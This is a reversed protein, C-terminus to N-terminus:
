QVRKVEIGIEKYMTLVSPEVLFHTLGVGVLSPEKMYNASRVAMKLHRKKHLIEYEHPALKYRLHKDVEEILERLTKEDGAHYAQNMKKGLETPIKGRYLRGYNEHEDPSDLFQVPINRKEAAHTLTRELIGYTDLHYQMSAKEDPKKAIVIGVKIEEEQKKWNAEELFVYKKGAIYKLLDQEYSIEKPVIHNCGIAHSVAGNYILEWVFPLKRQESM